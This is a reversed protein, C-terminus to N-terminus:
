SARSNAPLSESDSRVRYGDQLRAPANGAPKSVKVTEIAGAALWEALIKGVDGRSVGASDSLGSKTDGTQGANQIAQWLRSRQEQATSLGAVNQSVQSECTVTVAWDDGRFGAGAPGEEIDLLYRESFGVSSGATLLLRHSGSGLRYPERRSLLMWGRAFEQVGSYALDELETEQRAKVAKTTHHCLILTAGAERVAQSIELLLPGMAYLSRPDILKNGSLLCLYLPDLIVVGIQRDRINKALWMLHSPESLKPLGFSLHLWPVQPNIGKAKAVIQMTQQLMAESSEGLLMWVRTTRPVVFRGLFPVGCVLSLILDVLIGTKLTKRPGGLITPLSWVLLSEVLWCLSFPRNFFSAADVIEIRPDEPDGAATALRSVSHPPQGGGTSQPHSVQQGNLAAPTLQSNTPSQHMIPVGNPKTPGRGSVVSARSVQMGPPTLVVGGAQSQLVPLPSNELLWRQAADSSTISWVRNFSAHRSPRTSRQWRQESILGAESLAAFAAGIVSPKINSPLYDYVDDATVESSQLAHILVARQVMRLYARRYKRLLNRIPLPIPNM